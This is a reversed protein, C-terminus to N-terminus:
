FIGVFTSCFDMLIDLLHGFVTKCESNFEQGCSAWPLESTFSAFTYYITWALIMNYYLAVM